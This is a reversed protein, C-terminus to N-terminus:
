NSRCEASAASALPTLEELQTNSASMGSVISEIAAVDQDLGAMAAPQIYGIMEAAIEFGDAAYELADLCAQPTVEVITEVPVEVEKIVEVEKTETVVQPEPAVSDGGALGWGLVAAGLAIVATPAWSPRTKPARPLKQSSKPAPVPSPLQNESM